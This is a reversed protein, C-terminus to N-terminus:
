VSIVHIPTEDPSTRNRLTIDATVGLAELMETITSLTPNADEDNLIRAVSSREREMRRALEEKSIHMRERMVDIARMLSLEGDMERYGAAVDPNQLRVQRRQEHRSM